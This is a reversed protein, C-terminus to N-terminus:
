PMKLANKRAKDWLALASYNTTEVFQINRRKVVTEKVVSSGFNDVKTVIGNVRLEKNFLVTPIMQHVGYKKKNRMMHHEVFNAKSLFGFHGNKNLEMVAEGHLVDMRLNAAYGYVAAVFQIGLFGTIFIPADWFVVPVLVGSAFFANLLNLTLLDNKNGAYQGEVSINKNREM